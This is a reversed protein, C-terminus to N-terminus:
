LGLSLGAAHSVLMPDTTFYLMETDEGSKPKSHWRAM